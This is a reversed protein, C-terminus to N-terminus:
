GRMEIAAIMEVLIKAAYAASLGHDHLPSVEMVDMGVVAPSCISYLLELLNNPTIGLPEPNGVGPAYVPDLVDIDISIYIPRGGITTSLRRRILDPNEVIQRTTYYTVGRRRAELVEEESYGRVGLVVVDLGEARELLRRLYTAHSIKLDMYENRLDLHADFVVLVLDRRERYAALVSSLTFTHEGGLMIPIKGHSLIKRCVTYTRKLMKSLKYSFVVDGLDHLKVNDINFDFMVSNIEINSSYRRVAEPGYRSGIRFTSTLDFPVGFAVYKSDEFSKDSCFLFDRSKIIHGIEEYIKDM